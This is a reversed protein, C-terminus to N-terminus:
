LEVKGLGSMLVIEQSEKNEAAEELTTLAGENEVMKSQILGYLEDSCKLAGFNHIGSIKEYFIDDDINESFEADGYNLLHLPSKSYQLEKLTIKRDGHNQILEGSYSIRKTDPKVLISSVSKDISKSFIATACMLHFTNNEIMEASLSSDFSVTGKAFIKKGQYKNINSESLVFDENVYEYGSPVIITTGNVTSKASILKQNDQSVVYTGNVFIYLIKKESMQEDIPETAYFNGNVIFATNENLSEIYEKNLLLDGNEVKGTAKSDNPYPISICMSDKLLSSATGILQEPCILVGMLHIGSIKKTLMESDTGPEVMVAGMTVIHLAGDIAELYGQNITTVGMSLSVNAEKPVLIINGIGRLSINPYKSYFDERAIICGVGKITDTNKLTENEEKSLISLVGIGSIVKEKKAEIM